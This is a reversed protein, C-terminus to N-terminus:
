GQLKPRQIPMSIILEMWAVHDCRERRPFYRSARSSSLITVSPARRVVFCVWCDFSWAHTSSNQPPSRIRRECCSCSRSSSLDRSPCSWLARSWSCMVLVVNHRKLRHPSCFLSLLWIIVCPYILKPTAFSHSARLLLLIAIIPVLLLDRHNPCPSSRSARSSSLIAVSAVLVHDCRERRPFCWSSLITVSPTPRLVFCVWCDFSWAHTSTLPPHM